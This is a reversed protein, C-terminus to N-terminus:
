RNGGGGGGAGEKRIYGRRCNPDQCYRSNRIELIELNSICLPDLYNLEKM